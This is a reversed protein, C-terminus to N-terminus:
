IVDSFLAFLIAHTHNCSTYAFATQKVYLDSSVLLLPLVNISVDNVLYTMAISVPTLPFSYVISKLIM